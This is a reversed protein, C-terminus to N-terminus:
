YKFANIKSIPVYAVTSETSTIELALTLERDGDQKSPDAHMLVDVVQGAVMEQESLQEKKVNDNVVVTVNGSSLGVGVERTKLTAAVLETVTDELEPQSNVLKTGTSGVSRLIKTSRLDVYYQPQEHALASSLKHLKGVFPSYGLMTTVMGGMLQRRKTEKDVDPFVINLPSGDCHYFIKRQYTWTGAPTNAILPLEFQVPASDQFVLYPNLAYKGQDEDFSSAMGVESFRARVEEFMTLYRDGHRHLTQEDAEVTLRVDPVLLREGSIRLERDHLKQKELIPHERLLQSVARYADGSELSVFRQQALETLGDVAALLQECEHRQEEYEAYRGSPQMETM